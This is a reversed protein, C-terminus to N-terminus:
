LRATSAGNEDPTAGSDPTKPSLSPPGKLSITLAVTAFVALALLFVLQTFRPAATRFDSVSLSRRPEEPPVDSVLPAEEAPAVGMSQSLERAERTAVPPPEFGCASYRGLADSVSLGVCQAYSRVFGRVFVDGPLADFAGAELRELSHEPIRTERAIHALSM